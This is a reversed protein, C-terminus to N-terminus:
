FKTKAVVVFSSKEAVDPPLKEPVTEKPLPAIISKAPVNWYGRCSGM